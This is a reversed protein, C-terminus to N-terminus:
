ARWAPSFKRWPFKRQRYERKCEKPRRKGWHFAKKAPTREPRKEADVRLKLYGDISKGTQKQFKASVLRHVEEPEAVDRKVLTDFIDFSVIQAQSVAREIEDYKASLAKGLCHRIERKM